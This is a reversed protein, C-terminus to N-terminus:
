RSTSSRKSKKNKRKNNKQALKKSIRRKHTTRASKKLYKSPRKRTRSGGGYSVLDLKPMKTVYDLTKVGSMRRFNRKEKGGDVYEFVYKLDGITLFLTQKMDKKSIPIPSIVYNAYMPNIDQTDETDKVTTGTFINYGKPFQSQKLMIRGIFKDNVGGEKDLKSLDLILFCCGFREKVDYEQDDIKSVDVCYYLKGSTTSVKVGVYGKPSHSCAVHTFDNVDIFQTAISHELDNIAGGEQFHIDSATEFLKFGTGFSTTSVPMSVGSRKNNPYAWYSGSTIGSVLRLLEKLKNDDGRYTVLLDKLVQNFERLGDHIEVKNASTIHSDKIKAVTKKDEIETKTLETEKIGAKYQEDFITGPTTPIKGRPPLSHMFGFKVKDGADICAMLHGKMLLKEFIGNFDPDDCTIAGSM